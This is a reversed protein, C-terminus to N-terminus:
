LEAKANALRLKGRQRGALTTISQRQVGIECITGDTHPSSFGQFAVSKASASALVGPKEENTVARLVAAFLAEM